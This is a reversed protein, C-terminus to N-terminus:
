YGSRRSRRLQLIKLARSNSEMDEVRYPRRWVEPGYAFADIEDFLLCDPHSAIQGRLITQSPLLYMRGSNIIPQLAGRVRDEKSRNRPTVPQVNFYLQEKEAKLRFYHDTNQQGAKEIGIVRPKWFKALRFIQDVFESPSSRDSWTELAFVEDDPSIGSVIAAAMDDATPSGSNPDCTLVRDLQSTKWKKEEGTQDGEPPRFVVESGDISFRFNRILGAPFDQQGSAIPNNCYQAFWVKPSREQLLQYKSWSQKAPFIILGREIAERLFVSIQDGYMEMIHAYLDRISWRTGIWDIITTHQSEVLPEINNNWEIVGNMEAPSRAAELGILDDCKIRTFHFGTIAGGAGVTMWHSEKHPASRNLTAQTNSWDVGQGAFKSPVLEEFLERLVINNQWHGKIERLFAVAQTATESAILVRAFEPNQIVLRISDAITLLTSKLHGRPMLMLRRLSPSETCFTCLDLHTAPNVDPYQLVGKALIYLNNKAQTRLGDRDTSNLGKLEEVVEEEKIILESPM